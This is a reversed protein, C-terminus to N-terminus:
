ATQTPSFLSSAAAPCTAIACGNLIAFGIATSMCINISAWSAAHGVQETFNGGAFLAGLVICAIVFQARAVINVLGVMRADGEPTQAERRLISSIFLSGVAGISLFGFATTWGNWDLVLEYTIFIAV